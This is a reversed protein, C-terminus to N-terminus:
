RSAAPTARQSWATAIALGLLVVDRLVTGWTALEAGGFCGCRLDIGRVLAQSLAAIFVVLMAGALTAAARTYLGVVLAVGCALEVGCFALAAAPVLKAPLLQYNAVAEAFSRLDPLKSLAAFVFVGGLAVRLGVGVARRM